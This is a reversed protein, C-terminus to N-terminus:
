ILAEPCFRYLAGMVDEITEADRYGPIFANRWHFHCTGCTVADKSDAFDLKLIARYDAANECVYWRDVDAAGCIAVGEDLLHIRGVGIPSVDHLEPFDNM